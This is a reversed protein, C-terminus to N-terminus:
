EARSAVRAFRAKLRLFPREIARYSLAALGLTIAFGLGVKLAFQAAAGLGLEAGLRQALQLGLIHVVYLGFSIRGLYVMVPHALIRAPEGAPRLAALLILTCLAAVASYAWILHPSPTAAAFDVYRNIALIALAGGWMLGARTLPAACLHRIRILWSSGAHLRTALLAGLAIADLHVFTNCWLGPHPTTEAVLYARVAFGLAVM